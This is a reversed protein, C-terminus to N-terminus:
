GPTMQWFDAGLMDWPLRREDPDNLDFQQSVYYLITAPERWINAGGHGVGGPIYLLQAKGSGMVLRM